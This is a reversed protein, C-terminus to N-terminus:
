APWNRPPHVGGRGWSRVRFDSLDKCWKCDWNQLNSVSCYAAYSTKVFRLGLDHTYPSAFGPGVLALLLAASLIARAM